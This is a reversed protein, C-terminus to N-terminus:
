LALLWEAIIQAIADSNSELMMMHGNGRIGRDPLFCFEARAGVQNLWGVIQEDAQRPHDVDRDGLVLLVPLGNPREPAEVKIQSGRVNRREIRIRPPIGHLGARYKDAYARPFHDSDGIYKVGIDEDTPLNWESKPMLLRRGFTEVEIVDEDERTVKAVPQINGPPAPAIAVIAAIRERDIEALRWGYCGSMSHVLLVIPPEICDLLGRLGSVVVEGCLTETPVCGSRGVGPWDPVVVRFGSNAIFLAWGRRGDPTGLYCEGTHAGGHVMVVTPKRAPAPVPTLVDAYVSIPAPTRLIGFEM